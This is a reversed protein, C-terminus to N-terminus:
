RSYLEALERTRAAIYDKVLDDRRAEFFYRYGSADQWYRYIQKEGRPNNVELSQNMPFKESPFRHNCFRCFAEDPHEPTWSLKEEQRGNNCNPCGVFYLGSREPVLKILAASDLSRVYRTSELLQAVTASQLPISFLLLVALRMFRV